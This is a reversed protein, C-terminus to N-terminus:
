KNEGKEEAKPSQVGLAEQRVLVRAPPPLFATKRLPCFYRAGSFCNSCLADVCGNCCAIGRSAHTVYAAPANCDPCPEMFAARSACCENSLKVLAEAAAQAEMEDIRDQCVSCPGGPTNCDRPNGPAYYGGHNFAYSPTRLNIEMTDTNPRPTDPRSTESPSDMSDTKILERLFTQGCWFPNTLALWFPGYRGVGM